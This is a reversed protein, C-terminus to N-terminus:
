KTLLLKGQKTIRLTYVQGDLLIEAKGHADVISRADYAPPPAIAGPRRVTALDERAAIMNGDGGDLAGDPAGDISRDSGAGDGDGHDSGHAM